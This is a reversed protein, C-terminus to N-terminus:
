KEQYYKKNYANIKKKPEPLLSKIQEKHEANYKKQYEKYKNTPKMIDTCINKTQETMYGQGEGDSKM